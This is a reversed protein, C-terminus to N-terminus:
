EGSTQFVASYEKKKKKFTVKVHYEEGSKLHTSFANLGYPKVVKTEPDVDTRQIEVECTIKEREVAKGDSKILYFVTNNESLMWNVVVEIYYKGAEKVVGKHPPAEMPTVSESNTGGYNNMTNTLTSNQGPQTTQATGQIAVFFLLLVISIQLTKM